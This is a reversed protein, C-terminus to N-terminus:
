DKEQVWPKYVQPPKSLYSIAGAMVQDSENVLEVLVRLQGLLTTECRLTLALLLGRSRCM